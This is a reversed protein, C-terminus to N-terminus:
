AVKQNYQLFEALTLTHPVPQRIRRAAYAYAVFASLGREFVAVNVNGGTTGRLAFLVERYHLLHQEALTPKSPNFYAANMNRIFTEVLAKDNCHQAVAFYVGLVGGLEFKHKALQLQDVFQVGDMVRIAAAKTNVSGRLGAALQAATAKGGKMVLGSTIVNLLGCERLASDFYDSSNKSAVRSNFQEYRQNAVAENEVTHTILLLTADAPVYALKQKLATARTYGDLLWLKRDALSYAAHFVLSDGVLMGHVHRKRPLNKSHHRQGPFVNDIALSIIREPTVVQSHPKNLTKRSPVFKTM